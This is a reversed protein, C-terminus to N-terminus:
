KAENWIHLFLNYDKSPIFFDPNLMYHNKRTRRMLGKTRLLRFAKLFTKHEIAIVDMSTEPNIEVEYNYNMQNPDWKILEKVLVVTKQEAKSMKEFEVIFDIGQQKYKDYACTRDEMDVESWSQKSVMWFANGNKRKTRKILEENSKLNIQSISSM